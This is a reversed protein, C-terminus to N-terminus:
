EPKACYYIEEDPDLGLRTRLGPDLTRVYDDVAVLFKAAALREKYDRGYVRVHDRQGFYRLRDEPSQVSPDEYTTDGKIPTQLIAWGGPKLVRYLEAMARQDDPIHEMVHNCIVVDFTADPLQIGTIDMQVMAQRSELDASLYDVNAHAKLLMGVVYEPSVHLLKKRPPVFLDTRETLYRWLLRHRELSGCIPCRADQRSVIGAPRFASVASKCLPCYRASGRWRRRAVPRVLGRYRNKLVEAYQDPVADKVARAFGM